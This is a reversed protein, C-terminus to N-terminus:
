GGSGPPPGTPTSTGRCRTGGTRATGSLIDALQRRTIVAVAPRPAALARRAAPVIDDGGRYIAEVTLLVTEGPQPQYSTLDM